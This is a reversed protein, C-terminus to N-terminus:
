AGGEDVTEATGCSGRVRLELDLVLRRAQTREGTIREFLFEVAAEAMQRVPQAFTTLPPLILETWFPDDVAVLAVDEPVRLRRSRLARLAGITMLNNAVVLATPKGERLLTETAM